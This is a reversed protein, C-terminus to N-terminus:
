KIQILEPSETSAEILRITERVTEAKQVSLKAPFATEGKAIEDAYRNLQPIMAKARAGYSRLIDMLVVIRKESAWLNQTRTYDVCAQIGEEIRHQSLVRLGEIRVQDAFMEGSPAPEAVAQYIVPLLPEIEEYSLMRYVSSIEGRARGDENELGARVAKYLQARDVGDLSQRLMQGFIASILFRQEM